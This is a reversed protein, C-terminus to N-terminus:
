WNTNPSCIQISGVQITSSVIINWGKIIAKGMRVLGTNSAKLRQKALETLQKALQGCKEGDYTANALQERLLKVLEVQM